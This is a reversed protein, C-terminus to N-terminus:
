RLKRWIEVMALTDLKCYELMNKIMRDKLPSNSYIHKYWYLSAIGGEHIDELEKYSLHPALIPLVNKISSSGKFGPSIYYQKSFIEMLDYVRNNVSMLFDKYEPYQQAMENNRTMEFSKNWVIITGTPGIQQQLNSLLKPIPIDTDTHLYEYHEPTKDKGKIIHLSYQFTMQQYPRLGDFLPIASGYTEYDLFYLPYNLQNLTNTISENDIIDKGTKTAILQNQQKKNLTFNDPIDTIKQINLNQLINIQKKTIRQLDFINYEPLYAWCYDKFPCEYPKDCQKGIHIQVKQTNEDALNIIELAKPINAETIQRQNEVQETLDEITLLKEPDIEGNRVYENNIHILYTRDIPIGDKELAIKQFCLDPIHEDKVQTSSKVEYLDWKNTAPNLHLIDAKCYLDPPMANAQFITTCNNRIYNQTEARGKSYWDKVVAPDSHHAPSAPSKFLALKHAYSEVVFGQDFIAQQTEDVATKLDKRNKSLWLKKPCQLYNM